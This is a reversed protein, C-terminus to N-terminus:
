FWLSMWINKACLERFSKKLIGFAFGVILCGCIRWKNYMLELISYQEGEKHFTMIWLLLPYGKNIFFNPSFGNQNGIDINFVM